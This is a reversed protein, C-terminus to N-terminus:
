EYTYTHILEHCSLPAFEGPTKPFCFVCAILLDILSMDARLRRCKYFLIAILVLPFASFILNLPLSLFCYKSTEESMTKVRSVYVDHM